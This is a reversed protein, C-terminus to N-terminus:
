YFIYFIFNLYSIFIFNLYLIWYFIDIYKMLYRQKLDITKLGIQISDLITQYRLFNKNKLFYFKKIILIKCFYILIKYKVFIKINILYLM